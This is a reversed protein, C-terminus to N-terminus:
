LEATSSDLSGVHRFVTFRSTVATLVAIVFILILTGIYGSAGVTFTGFLATMQDSAPDAFGSSTWWGAILFCFLALVGGSLAGKLGLLLFHKQFESAIYSQEAGVFHLVEIVHQNGSMAGRTAFVVTLVTAAMMLMFLVVGGVITAQAMSTLRDLWARHDDLSAGPVSEVIKARLASLDPPDNGDISLTILRPVPLENLNIGSGLWPELLRGMADANIVTVNTIGSFEGAIQRASVVAAELDVGEIPRVQLTIERAIDSQWSKASDNVMSVAGLTLSALFTMIAIVATLATGAVSSRPVISHLERDRMLTADDTESAEGTIDTDSTETM